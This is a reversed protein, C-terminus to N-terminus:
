LKNPCPNQSPRPASAGDNQPCPTGDPNAGLNPPHSAHDYMEAYESGFFFNRIFWPLYDYWGHGIKNFFGNPAVYDPTGAGSGVNILDGKADYMCQQGSSWFGASTSCMEWTAGAHGGFSPSQWQSTNGDSCQLAQPCGNADLPIHCPCDPLLTYWPPPSPRPTWPNPVYPVSPGVPGEAGMVPNGLGYILGWSDFANNAKNGVYQVLNYGNLEGILDQSLWRTLLPRYHRTGFYYLSSVLDWEKSSFLFRPHFSGERILKLGFPSYELVSLLSTASATTQLINGNFDCHYFVDTGHVTAALIGGASGGVAGSLDAGHTYTELVNGSGDAIALVLWDKYIYRNTAATGDPAYEVKERRRWLADFPCKVTAGNADSGPNASTNVISM